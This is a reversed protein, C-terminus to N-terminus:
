LLGFARLPGCTLSAASTTPVRCRRGERWAIGAAPGSKEGKGGVRDWGQEQELRPASPAQAFAVPPPPPPLPESAVAGPSRDCWPCPPALARPKSSPSRPGAPCAPPGELLDTLTSHTMPKTKTPGRGPSRSWPSRERKEQEVCPSRLRALSSAKSACRLPRLSSLSLWAYIRGRYERLDQHIDVIKRSLMRDNSM